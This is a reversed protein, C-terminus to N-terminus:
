TEEIGISIYDCQHPDMARKMIDRILVVDDAKNEDRQKIKEFVENLGDVGGNKTNITELMLSRVNVDNLDKSMLLKNKIPGNGGLVIEDVKHVKFIENIKSACEKIFGDIKNEYIRGFRAASQGGKKHKNSKGNIGYMFADSSKSYLVNSVIGCLTGICLEKGNIVIIGHLKHKTITNAQNNKINQIIKITNKYTQITEVKTPKARPKPNSNSNPRVHKWQCYKNRCGKKSFYDWCVRFNKDDMPLYPLRRVTKQKQERKQPAYSNATTTNNNPDVHRWRCHKNRCGKYSQYDWCVDWAAANGGYAM